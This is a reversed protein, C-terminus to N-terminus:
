AELFGISSCDNYISGIMVGKGRHDQCLLVIREEEGLIVIDHISSILTDLGSSSVWSRRSSVGLMLPVISLKVHITSNSKSSWRSMENQKEFFRTLLDDDCRRLLMV